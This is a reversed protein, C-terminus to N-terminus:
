QLVTAGPQEPIIAKGHEDLRIVSHRSTNAPKTFDYATATQVVPTDFANFNFSEGSISPARSGSRSGEQPTAPRSDGELVVTMNRHPVPKRTAYYGTIPPGPTLTDPLLAPSPARISAKEDDEQISVPYDQLSVPSRAGSWLGIRPSQPSMISAHMSSVPSSVGTSPEMAFTRPGRATVIDRPRRGRSPRATSSTMDTMSRTTSRSPPLSNSYMSKKSTTTSRSPPPSYSQMTSAISRSRDPTEIPSELEVMGPPPPTVEFQIPTPPASLYGKQRLAAKKRERLAYTFILAILVCAALIGTILGVVLGTIM